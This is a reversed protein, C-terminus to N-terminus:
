EAEAEKRAQEEEEERIMREIKKLREGAKEWEEKEREEIKKELRERERRMLEAEDKGVEVGHLPSDIKRLKEKIAGMGVVEPYFKPGAVTMIAEGTWINVAKMMPAEGLYCGAVGSGWEGRLGESKVHATVMCGFPANRLPRPAEGEYLMVPTEGRKGWYNNRMSVFHEMAYPWLHQPVGSVMAAAIGRKVTQINREAKGNQQSQYPASM